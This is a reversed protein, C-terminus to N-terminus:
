SNFICIATLKNKICSQLPRHFINKRLFNNELTNFRRINLKSELLPLGIHNLLDHFLNKYFSM